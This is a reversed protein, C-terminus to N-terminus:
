DVKYEVRRDFAHIEEETYKQPDDPAFPRREGAAVIEIEGTYGLDALYASVAYARRESLAYNYDDSGIPDTHGIITVRHPAADKIYAYIDEVAAIGDPTLADSDYEFRVPVPVVEATFNRFEPSALGSKRGRFQRTAIYTPALAKAEIARKYVRKEVDAPPPTPNAAVDRMDDLAEEYVKVTNVWDKRDYYADGLAVLVQWPRGYRAAEAIADPPSDTSMTTLAARALARGVQDRYAGDCSPEATMAKHLVDFRDVARDAIATKIEADIAACDALAVGAPLASLAAPLAVVFRLRIM